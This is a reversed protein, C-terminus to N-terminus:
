KTWTDITVQRVTVTDGASAAPVEVKVKATIAASMDVTEADYGVEVDGGEAICEGIVIQNATDTHEYMTFVAVWSGDAEPSPDLTQAELVDGNLYFHLKFAGSGTKSGSIKWRLVKGATFWGAPIALSSGNADDSGTYSQTTATFGSSIVLPVGGTYDPITVTRDATPDTVTLTLEYADATAGEFLLGNSKGTVSNAADVDNTTLSSLMFAGTANPLTVTRDATPDAVSLTLEYADETAGEFIISGNTYFSGWSFDKGFTWGKENQSFDKSSRADVNFSFLLILVIFFLIRKM